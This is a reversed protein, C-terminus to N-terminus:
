RTVASNDIGNRQLELANVVRTVGQVGGAIREAAVIDPPDWVFGSLRVVGGDARVIIHRAYLEKDNALALEVREVMANDAAQESATKPPGSACAAVSCVCAAALAARAIRNETASLMTM